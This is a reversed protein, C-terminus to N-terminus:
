PFIDLISYTKNQYVVNIGFKKLLEPPFVFDTLMYKASADRAFDLMRTEKVDLTPSIYRSYIANERDAFYNWTKLAALNTYTLQGRDKFAYAMPRLGLYRIEIASWRNTLFSVFLSNPPTEERIYTFADAYETNTPCIMRGQSWCTVVGPIEVVPNPPNVGLWLLASLTGIIFAARTLWPRTARSTMQALPYFWFIFLFPLLYRMGRMLETQLPIIRLTREINQEVSPVLVTVFIIGAV